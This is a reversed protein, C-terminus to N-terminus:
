LLLICDDANKRKLNLRLIKCFNSAVVASSTTIWFSMFSHRIGLLFSNSGRNKMITQMTVSFFFMGWKIMIKLETFFCLCSATVQKTELEIWCVAESATVSRFHNKITEAWIILAVSVINEISGDTHFRLEFTKKKKHPFRTPDNIAKCKYM